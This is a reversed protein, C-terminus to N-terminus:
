LQYPGVKHHTQVLGDSFFRGWDFQIMKGLYRPSFEFLIFSFVVENVIEAAVGRKKPASPWPYIQGLPKPAALRFRCTDTLWNLRWLKWRRLPEPSKPFCWGVWVFMTRWDLISKWDIDDNQIDGNRWIKHAQRNEFTLNSTWMVWRWSFLEWM